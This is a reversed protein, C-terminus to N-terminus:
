SRDLERALKAMGLCSHVLRLLNSRMEYEDVQIAQLPRRHDSEHNGFPAQYHISASEPEAVLFKTPKIM